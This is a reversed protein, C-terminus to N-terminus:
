INKFISNYEYINKIYNAFVELSMDSKMINVQICTLGINDKTYGINSDIRDLSIRDPSGINTQLQRGSIYCKGSQKTYIEKLDDLTISCKYKDKQKGRRKAAKLLEDLIEEIPANKSWEQRNSARKINKCNYCQTNWTNYNRIGKQFFDLNKEVKCTRCKM